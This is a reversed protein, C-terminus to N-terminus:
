SSLMVRKQSVKSCQEDIYPQAALVGPHAPQESSQVCLVEHSGCVPEPYQRKIVPHIAQLLGEMEDNSFLHPYEEASWCATSPMLTAQIKWTVPRLPFSLLFLHYGHSHCPISDFWAWGVAYSFRLAIYKIITLPIFLDLFTKTGTLTDWSLM